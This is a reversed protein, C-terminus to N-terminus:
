PCTPQNEASARATKTVLRHARDRMELYLRPLEAPPPEMQRAVHYQVVALALDFSEDRAKLRTEKAAM